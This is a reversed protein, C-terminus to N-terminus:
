RIPGKTHRVGTPLSELHEHSVAAVVQQTACKDQAMPTLNNGNDCVVIHQPEFYRLLSRLTHGIEDASKHCPVVVGIRKLFTPDNVWKDDILDRGDARQALHSVPSGGVGVGARGVADGIAGSAAEGATVSAAPSLLPTSRAGQAM